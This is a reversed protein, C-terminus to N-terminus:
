RRYFPLLSLWLRQKERKWFEQEGGTTCNIKQDICYLEHSLNRLKSVPNQERDFGKTNEGPVIAYNETECTCCVICGEPVPKGCCVCFDTNTNNEPKM